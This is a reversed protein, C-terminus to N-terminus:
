AAIIIVTKKSMKGGGSYEDDLLIRMGSKEIYFKFDYFILITFYVTFQRPYTIRKSLIM